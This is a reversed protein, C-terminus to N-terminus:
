FGWCADYLEVSVIPQYREQCVCTAYNLNLWEAAEQDNLTFGISAEMNQLEGIADDFCDGSYGGFVSKLQERQLLDGASLGLKKLSLKKM